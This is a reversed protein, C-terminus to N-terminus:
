PVFGAALFNTLLLSFPMGPPETTYSGGAFAPSKPSTPEIGPDLLDRPTPLPVLEKHGM